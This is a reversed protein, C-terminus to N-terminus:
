LARLILLTQDDAATRGRAFASVASLVSTIGAQASPACSLAEDLRDNGFFGGDPDRREVIGDTYLAILDGQELHLVADEYTEDELVGLPTGGTADLPTGPLACRRLLRPPNHGANAYVLTRTKPDYVCYFATVFTGTNSTYREYMHRNVFSLLGAPTESPGAYCHALSHTIAMIVAAPTGHGAVDAVLIGTRGDDLKIVDYYDGGAHRSPRYEATIELGEVEPIRSPLLERQIRAVTELEADLSANAEELEKRLVLNHTVRGLINATWLMQPVTEPDFAEPEERMLLVFNFCDGGDFIPLAVLSKMGILHERAPDDDAVTLDPVLVPRPDEFLDGVFGGRYRPLLHREQWPNRVEKWDSNRAVLYNPPNEGRRTISVLRDSALQLTNSERFVRTLEHPDTQRSVERMTAAVDDLREQWTGESM